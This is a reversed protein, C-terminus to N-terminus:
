KQSTGTGSIPRTCATVLWMAKAPPDKSQVGTLLLQSDLGMKRALDEEIIRISSQPLLMTNEGPVTNNEDQIVIAISPNM